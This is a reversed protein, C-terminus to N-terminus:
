ILIIRNGRFNYNNSNYKDFGNENNSIQINMNNLNNNKNFDFGNNNMSNNNNLHADNKNFLNINNNKNNKNYLSKSDDPYHDLKKIHNNNINNKKINRNNNNKNNIKQKKGSEMYENVFNMPNEINERRMNKYNQKPKNSDMYTKRPDASNNRLYYKDPKNGAENTEYLHNLKTKENNENINSYYNRQDEINNFPMYNNQINKREENINPKKNDNFYYGTESLNNINNNNEIKQKDKGDDNFNYFSNLKKGSYNRKKPSNSELNKNGYYNNQLTNINNNNNYPINDYSQYLSNQNDNYNYDNLMPDNKINNLFQNNNNENMILSLNRMRGIQSNMKDVIIQEPIYIDKINLDRLAKRYGSFKFADKIMPLDKSNDVSFLLRDNKTMVELNNRDYIVIFIDNKIIVEYLNFLRNANGVNFEELFMNLIQEDIFDYNDFFYEKETIKNKKPPCPKNLLSRLNLPYKRAFYDCFINHENQFNEINSNLYKIIKDYNCHGKFYNLWTKDILFLNLSEFNLVNQCKHKLFQEFHFYYYACKYMKLSNQYENKNKIISPNDNQKSNIGIPADKNKNKNKNLIYEDNVNNYKNRNIDKNNQEDNNTWEDIKNNEIRNNDKIKISFYGKDYFIKQTSNIQRIKFKYIFDHVEKDFFIPLIDEKSEDNNFKFYGEGIINNMIYYFYYISKNIEIVCKKNNFTGKVKLEIENPYGGKIKRWTEEDLIFFPKDPNITNNGILIYRNSNGRREEFEYFDKNLAYFPTCEYKTTMLKNRFKSIWNLISKNYEDYELM